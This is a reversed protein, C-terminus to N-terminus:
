EGREDEVATWYLSDDSDSDYDHGGCVEQDNTCQGLFRNIDCVPMAWFSPNQTVVDLPVDINAMVDESLSIAPWLSDWRELSTKNQKSWAISSDLITQSAIGYSALNAWEPVDRLSKMVVSTFGNPASLYDYRYNVPFVYKNDGNFYGATFGGSGVQSDAGYDDLHVFIRTYILICRFIILDFLDTWSQQQTFPDIYTSSNRTDVYLYRGQDLTINANVPAYLLNNYANQTSNFMAQFTSMIIDKLEQNGSAQPVDVQGIANIGVGVGRGVAGSGPIPIASILVTFIASIMSVAANQAEADTIAINPATSKLNGLM